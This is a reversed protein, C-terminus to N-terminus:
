IVSDKYNSIFPMVNNVGVKVIIFIITYISSEHLNKVKQDIMVNTSYICIFEVQMHM